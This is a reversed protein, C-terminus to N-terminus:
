KSEDGGELKDVAQKGIGNKKIRKTDAKIHLPIVGKPELPNM